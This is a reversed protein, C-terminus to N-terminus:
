YRYVETPVDKGRVTNVIAPLVEKPVSFYAFHDLLHINERIWSPPVKRLQAKIGRGKFDSVSIFTRAMENIRYPGASYIFIEKDEKDMGFMATGM